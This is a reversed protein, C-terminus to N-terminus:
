AVAGICDILAIDAQGAISNYVQRCESEGVMRTRLNRSVQQTVAQQWLPALFNPSAKFTALCRGQQQLYQMLALTLPPKDCGPQIGALLLSKM